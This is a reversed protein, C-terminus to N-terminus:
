HYYDLGVFELMQRHTEVNEKTLLSLNHSHKKWSGKTFLARNILHYAWVFPLLLPAKKLIPYNTSLQKRGPFVRRLIYATKGQRRQNSQQLDRVGRSLIQQRTTGWSGNAFIVDTILDAKDDSEGHEFWVSITRRIHRYFTGLYLRDLIQLVYAEDLEPHAKLFVWLDVVHRCGIGSARYHKTFHTFLYIFMDETSMTYRHAEMRKALPWGDGLYTALVSTSSTSLCKHLEITLADNNWVLEHDSERKEQFGLAQMIPIIQPYQEMRILVDADGMMRLEPKPYLSKLASGKLPMYDIGDMDFADFIRTLERMQRRSFQVAKCYYQFLKQMTPSQPDIGCLIAGEYVLAGIHHTGIIRATAALDFGEPLEVKKGTVASKLLSAIGMQTANMQKM